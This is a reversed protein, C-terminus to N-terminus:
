DKRFEPDGWQHGAGRWLPLLNNFECTRIPASPLATKSALFFSWIAM